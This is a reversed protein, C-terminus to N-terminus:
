FADGIALHVAAPIGFFDPREQGHSQPDKPLAHEGWAQAGPVRVGFDLRIPGVPSEYRV